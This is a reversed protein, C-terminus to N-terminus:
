SRCRSSAAPAATTAASCSSAAVKSRCWCSAAPWNSPRRWAPACAHSAERAAAGPPRGARRHPPRPASRAPAAAAPQRAPRRHPGAAARARPRRRAGERLRGQTRAGGTGGRRRGGGGGAADPARGDRRGDPRHDARRLPPLAAPRADRVAGAPPRVGGHRDGVTSRPHAVTTRQEIAIAPSLGSSPSWTRGRWRSWSSGPAPASARSTAGSARPTSPTSPWAARAPGRRARHDRGAPQAPHRLGDGEPQARPGRTDLDARGRSADERESWLVM